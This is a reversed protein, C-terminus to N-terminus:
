TNIDAKRYYGPTVGKNRKFVRTFAEETSYGLALAISRIAGSSEKLLRCGENVRCSTLYEMPSQGIVTKFLNFFSTRSMGIEKAIDNVTWSKSLNSHILRISKSIRYDSVIGVCTADPRVESQLYACITKFVFIESLRDLLGVNLCNSSNIEKELLKLTIRFYELDGEQIPFHVFESLTYLVSPFYPESFLLSGCMISTIPGSGGYYITREKSGNVINKFECQHSDGEDYISFEPGYPLLVCDGRTLPIRSGSNKIDIFCKGKLIIGFKVQGLSKFHIGWPSRLILKTYIAKKVRFRPEFNILM